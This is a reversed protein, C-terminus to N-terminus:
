TWTDYPKCGDSITEQEPQEPAAVDTPRIGSQNSEHGGARNTSERGLPARGPNESAPPKTHGHRGSAWLLRHFGSGQDVSWFNPLLQLQDNRITSGITANLTQLEAGATAQVEVVTSTAGVQLTVNLTLTQGVDVKQASIKSQTFGTSGVTVDYTGPPVNIFNYRGVENTKTTLNSNTTLETLKVEANVVAAGSPDTVIGELTGTAAQSWAPISSVTLLIGACVIALFFSSVRILRYCSSNM